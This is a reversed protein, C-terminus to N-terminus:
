KVTEEIQTFYDKEMQEAQLVVEENSAFFHKIIQLWFSGLTKEQDRVTLIMPIGYPSKLRTGVLSKMTVLGFVFPVEGEPIFFNKIFVIEGKGKAVKEPSEEDEDVIFLSNDRSVCVLSTKADVGAKM